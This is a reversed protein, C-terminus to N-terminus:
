DLALSAVIYQCTTPYSPGGIVVKVSVGGFGVVVFRMVKM